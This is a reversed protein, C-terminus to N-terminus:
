YAAHIKGFIENIMSNSPDASVSLVASQWSDSKITRVAIVKNDEYINMKVDGTGVREVGIGNGKENGCIFM